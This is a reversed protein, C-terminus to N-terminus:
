QRLFEDLAASFDEIDTYENVTPHFSHALSHNNIEHHKLEEIIDDRQWERLKEALRGVVNFDGKIGKSRLLKAARLIGDASNDNVYDETDFSFVIDTM